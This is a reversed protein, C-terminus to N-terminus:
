DSSEVDKGKGSRVTGYYDAVIIMSTQPAMFMGLGFCINCVATAMSLVWSFFAMGVMGGLGLDGLVGFGKGWALLAGMKQEYFFNIMLIPYVLYLGIVGPIVLLVFLFGIVFINLFMPIISLFFLKLGTGFDSMLEMKPKEAKRGEVVYIIFKSIWGYFAFTGFVPIICWLLYLM